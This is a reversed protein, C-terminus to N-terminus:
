FLHKLLCYSLVIFIFFLSLFGIFGTELLLQIYSNHPHTQCGNISGDLSTLTEYKKEKCVERFMKPGIGFLMNDKIIKISTFYITEHQISFLRIRGTDADNSINLQYKTFDIVRDKVSDEKM